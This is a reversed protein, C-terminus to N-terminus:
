GDKRQTEAGQGAAQLIRARLWRLAPDRDRSKHWIQVYPVPPLPIPAPLIILHDDLVLDRLSGRAVTLILDTGAILEPAVGWHPLVLALRRTHGSRALTEDVENITDDRMAVMAHPRSFYIAADLPKGELTRRDLLCAYDDNIILESRVQPPLVPFVGLGLDLDGDCVGAAMAERSFQSIALDIGPAHQRLDRVLHPLLMAGGYDSMSLRFRHRTGQPDFGQPGLVGRVGALADALPQAIELARITPVLGGGQRVLLPDGLLERLRALAHSVAPQSMNLRAAARSVHRETLLADLVVLLNLDVSRLSHLQHMSIRRIRIKCECSSYRFRPRFDDSLVTRHRNLGREGKKAGGKQCPGDDGELGSGIGRHAPGEAMREPSRHNGKTHAHEADNRHHQGHLNREGAKAIKGSLGFPDPGAAKGSDDVDRRCNQNCRFKPGGTEHGGHNGPLEGGREQDIGITEHAEAGAINRGRTEDADQEHHGSNRQYLAGSEQLDRRYGAASASM